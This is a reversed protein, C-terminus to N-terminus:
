AAAGVASQSAERDHVVVLARASVDALGERVSRHSSCLADTAAGANRARTSVARSRQGARAIREVGSQAVDRRGSLVSAKAGATLLSTRYDVHDRGQEVATVLLYAPDSARSQRRGSASRARRVPPTDDVVRLVGGRVATAEVMPM